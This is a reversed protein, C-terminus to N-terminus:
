LAHRSCRALKESHLRLNSLQAVHRSLPEPATVLRDQPTRKSILGSDRPVENHEANQDGLGFHPSESSERTM